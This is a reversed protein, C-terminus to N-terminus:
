VTGVGGEAGEEGEGEGMERGGLVAQGREVDEARCAHPHKGFVLLLQDDVVQMPGNWQLVREIERLVSDLDDGPLHFTCTCHTRVHM